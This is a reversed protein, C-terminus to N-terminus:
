ARQFVSSTSISEIKGGHKAMREQNRKAFVADQQEKTMKVWESYPIWGSGQSLNGSKGSFQNSDAANVIIESITTDVLYAEYGVDDVIIIRVSQQKCNCNHLCRV